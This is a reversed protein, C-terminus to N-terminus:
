PHLVHFRKNFYLISMQRLSCIEATFKGSFIIVTFVRCCIRCCLSLLMTFMSLLFSFIVIFVIVFVGVINLLSFNASDSGGMDNCFVKLTIYHIPGPTGGIDYKPCFHVSIVSGFILIKFHSWSYNKKM